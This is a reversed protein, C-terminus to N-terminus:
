FKKHAMFYFISVAYGARGYLKDLGSYTYSLYAEKMGQARLHNVGVLIMRTAIKQGQHAPAVATCGVSGIGPGEVDASVIVAGVVEGGVVAILARRSSHVDYLDTSRYYQTFNPEAADVCALVGPLDDTTAWRCLLGDPQHEPVSAEGMTMRMDFCNCEGWEHVYGRKRFFSANDAPIRPNIDERLLVEDFPKERVPVGPCLYDEGAGINCGAHGQARIHAEAEALLASGLGQGRLDDDVALLLITSGQVVCAARGGARTFVANEPNSLITQVTKEDRTIYPLNRRFLGVLTEPTLM